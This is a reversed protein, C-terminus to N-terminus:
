RDNEHGGFWLNKMEESRNLLDDLTGQDDIIGDKLVIIHDAQRLVSRRHSVVLCTAESQGNRNTFVMEWLQRETEVDLASSLDDFVLLEADRVFMRAAATRQLQGGSLRIGRPGVLTDLGKEMDSIDKRIVATTLSRDLDVQDEPLGLLINDRLSESFLLPVQGTYACRPPILFKAPDTIQEGNWLIEGSQHPLLGLLTKLLTTKGSGIRGTVVTFSGRSLNLSIGKVGNVRNAAEGFQYTLDNVILNELRHHETKAIYPVKPFEGFLHVPAHAVPGGPPVGQMLNEMRQLSIGSQNYMTILGGVMRMMETIPWLYAAFLAFDGISFEGAYMSRAALLLVMGMGVGVSGYSLSNIIESLLRDKIMSQRRRDNLQNFHAVIREEANGVKLAQTGNFMDAIIGTVQSTAARSAKRFKKVKPGLLQAIVVILSLPIIAGLTILPNIQYMIMFSIVAMITHGIVDETVTIAIMIENTDDRFTSIAEGSSLYKGDEKEPLPQGGPMDLIRSFMNRIMLAMNQHRFAINAIIASILALSAIIAYGIQLVVITGVPLGYEGEGTLYNFFSRLILGIVTHSLFFVTATLIDVIFYKLGYHILRGFYKYTKLIPPPFNM